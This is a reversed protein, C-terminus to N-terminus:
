FRIGLMSSVSPLIDIGWHLAVLAPLCRYRDWLWAFVLGVVFVPIGTGAIVSGLDGATGEVGDALLYRTPIHWAAFLMTAIVIAAIRGVTAELRTQLLGRFVLEEPSAAAFLPLIAGLAIAFVARSRPTEGLVDVIADLRQTNIALGVVLAAVSWAVAKGRVDSPRILDSVRYGVTHFIIAPVVLLALVKFVVVYWLDGTFSASGFLRVPHARIVLGILVAIGVYVVAYGVLVSAEVVPRDIRM